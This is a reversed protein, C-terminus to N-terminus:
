EADAAKLHLVHASPRAAEPEDAYLSELVSVDRKDLRRDGIFSQLHKEFFSRVGIDYLDFINRGAFAYVDQASFFRVGRSRSYVVVFADPTLRLM